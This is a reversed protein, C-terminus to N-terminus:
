SGGDDDGEEEAQERLIAEPDIQQLAAALERELMAEIRGPDTEAAALDKIRVPVNLVADRLTRFATYALRKADGVDILQGLYEALEAEERRRRISERLAREERYQRVAEDERAAKSAASSSEGREGAAPLDQDDDLEDSDDDVAPVRRRSLDTFSRRSEDTNRQWDQAARESDIKGDENVTIRGSRIAKQVAGLSVGMHRAFERQGMLAM